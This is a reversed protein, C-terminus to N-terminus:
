RGLPLALAAVVREHVEDERGTGDVVLWHARDRALQHFGAVVRRHFDDGLSEIRDPGSRDGAGALRRAAVEGPVDILVTVDPWLGATAWDSIQTLEEVDLGRGYGQYALTSYASRDTVVDRGAALHPRVVEAIHQARDAAMLLAETRDALDSAPDLLVARLRAGLETGGPERTLTAGLRDALLRAQTSKGCGEGGEFAIFRGSM